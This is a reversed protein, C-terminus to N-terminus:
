CTVRVRGYLASSPIELFVPAHGRQWGEDKKVTKTIGLTQVLDSLFPIARPKICSPSLFEM